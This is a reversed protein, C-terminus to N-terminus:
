TDEDEEAIRAIRLVENNLDEALAEYVGPVALIAAATMNEVIDSLIEDFTEQSIEHDRM